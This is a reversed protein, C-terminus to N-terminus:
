AAKRRPYEVPEYLKQLSATDIYLRGRILVGRVHGRRAALRLANETLGADGAAEALPALGAPIFRSSTTM